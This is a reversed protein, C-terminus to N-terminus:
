KDMKLLKSDEIKERYILFLGSSIIIVAGAVTWLDVTDKFIFYGYFVGWPFVIYLLSGIISADTRHLAQPLLSLAAIYAIGAAIFWPMMEWDTFNPLLNGGKYIVIAALVPTQFLMMYFVYSLWHDQRNIFKVTTAASANFFTGIIAAIMAFSIPEVGPRMAILVGTFGIAIALWRYLSIHEKFFFIALINLMFPLTFMIIYATALPLQSFAYIICLFNILMFYSRLAHFKLSKTTTVVKLGGCYFIVPIMFIITFINMYLAVAFPDYNASTIKLCVDTFPFISFSILTLLIGMTKVSLNKM